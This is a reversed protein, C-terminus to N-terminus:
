IRAVDLLNVIARMKGSPLVPLEEVVEFSVQMTQGLVQALGDRVASEIAMANAGEEPVIRVIVRDRRDQVVQFRAVGPLVRIVYMVGLGHVRNGEPTVLTDTVRGEIDGLLPAARGCPCRETLLRARDGIKYRIIPMGVSWLNTVAIEGVEGPAVLRDGDLIEVHVADYAIHMRGAPCEQAIYGGDRCGYENVVPCGFARAILERQEPFLLEATSIAAKLRLEHLNEGRRELFAAYRALVSAYGYIVEAGFGALRREFGAMQEDSLRFASLLTFNLLRDKWVRVRDQAGIEIPSGWLDAQRDGIQVGWWERARLKAALQSAERVNETWFVLPEGSSGGTALEFVDTVGEALLQRGTRRILPKTMLPLRHLDVAGRFDEPALEIQTFVDRWYPVRRAAHLIHARLLRDHESELAAADLRDNARFRRLFELTRRGRLREHLPYLFTRVLARNM